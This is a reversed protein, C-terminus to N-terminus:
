YCGSGVFHSLINQSYVQVRQSNFIIDTEYCEKYLKKPILQLLNYVHAHVHACKCVCTCLFVPLHKYSFFVAM